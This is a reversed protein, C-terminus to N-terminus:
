FELKTKKTLPNSIPHLAFYMFIPRHLPVQSPWIYCTHLVSIQYRNNFLLSDSYCISTGTDYTCYSIISNIYSIGSHHSPESCYVWSRFRITTFSVNRPLFIQIFLCLPKSKLMMAYVYKTSYHHQLITGNSTNM